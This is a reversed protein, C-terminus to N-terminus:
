RVLFCEGKLACAFCKDISFVDTPDSQGKDLVFVRLSSEMDIWVPKGQAASEVSVLVDAINSPGIGGAYGCPIEVPHVLPSQYESAIVGLGCSADFLVSVNAPPHTSTGVIAEWIGRTEDNLQFIFEVKPVAAMVTRINAAYTELNSPEVLVKNAVTANIQVRGFGLTDLESVFSADGDLVQQCRAGCLHGALKLVDDHPESALKKKLAALRQVWAWTAYRPQGELDPRFLIGWEIWPYQKSILALLEPHVSDDAGCFGMARLKLTM